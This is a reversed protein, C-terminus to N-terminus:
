YHSRMRRGFLNSRRLTEEPSKAAPESSIGESSPNPNPNPTDDSLSM